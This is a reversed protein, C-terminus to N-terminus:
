DGHASSSADGAGRRTQRNGNARATSAMATLRAMAEAQAQSMQPKVNPHYREADDTCGIPEVPRPSYNRRVPRPPRYERFGDPRVPAALRDQASPYKV